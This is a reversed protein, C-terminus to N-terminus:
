RQVGGTQREGLGLQDHQGDHLHEGGRLLGRGPYHAPGPMPDDRAHSNGLNDWCKERCPRSQTAEIDARALELQGTVVQKFRPEAVLMYKDTEEKNPGLYLLRDGKEVKLYKSKDLVSMDSMVRLYMAWYRKVEM